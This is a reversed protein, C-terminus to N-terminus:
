ANKQPQLIYGQEILYDELTKDGSLVIKKHTNNKLNENCTYWWNITSEAFEDSNGRAKFRELYNKQLSEEDPLCLVYDIGNQEYLDLMKYVDLFVFVVDYKKQAEKIAEIYNNPFDPNKVRTKNGKLKEYEDPSFNSYDYKYPSSELDIINSYKKSLTTKGIGAFGAIVLAKKM